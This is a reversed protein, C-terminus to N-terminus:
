NFLQIKKDGVGAVTVTQYGYYSGVATGGVVGSSIRTKGSSDVGCLETGSSNQVELINASQGSNGRLVAVRAGGSITNNVELAGQNIVTGISASGDSHISNLITGASNQIELINATQSAFGRLILAARAATTPTIFVTPSTGPVATPGFQNSDNTGTIIGGSSISAISTGGSNQVDLLKATQGSFGKLTLPVQGVATSTLTLPSAPAALLTGRVYIDGTPDIKTKVTGGSDQAEFLNASQAAFGKVLLPLEAANHAILSLPSGAAPGVPGQAGVDGRPITFNFIANTATGSNAVVVASGPAGTIVAGVAITGSPGQAGVDGRPITFNLIAASPTGTNTIIVASGPAGTIVAGVDITGAPGQPGVADEPIGLYGIDIDDEDEVWPTLTM